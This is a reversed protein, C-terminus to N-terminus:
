TPNLRDAMTIVRGTQPDHTHTLRRTAHERQHTASLTARTAGAAFHIANHAAMMHAAYEAKTM